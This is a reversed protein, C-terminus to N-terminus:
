FGLKAEKAAVALDGSCRLLEYVNAPDCVRNYARKCM